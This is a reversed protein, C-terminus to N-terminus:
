YDFRGVGADVTPTQLTEDEYTCFETTYDSNCFGGILIAQSLRIPNGSADKVWPDDMKPQATTFASGIGIIMAALLVLKMKKM